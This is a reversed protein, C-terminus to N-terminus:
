CALKLLYKQLPGCLSFDKFITGNVAFMFFHFLTAVRWVYLKNNQKNDRCKWCKNQSSPATLVNKNYEDLQRFWAAYQLQCAKFFFFLFFFLLINHFQIRVSSGEHNGLIGKMAGWLHILVDRVKHHHHLSSSSSLRLSLLFLNLPIHTFLLCCESSQIINPDATAATSPCIPTEPSLESSGTTCLAASVSYCGVKPYKLAPPM